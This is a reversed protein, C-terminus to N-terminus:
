LRNAVRDHKGMFIETTGHMRLIFFEQEVLPQTPGSVFREVDERQTEHAKLARLKTRIYQKTDIVTTIQKDPVGKWPKGFSEAPIVEHKLLYQAVSEPMCAYYLKPLVKNGLQSFAVQELEAYRRMPDRKGPLQPEEKLGAYKQFAYTTSLTLKSHDPHNSIGAPEFTIVVDPAFEQMPKFVAEELEGPPLESLKSDKFELYTIQSIGLIRGANELERSRIEGLQTPTADPYDGKSGVQGRTACLLAVDWGAKVYKPVTGGCTFSEDDPHAFVLLLKGMFRIIYAIVVIRVQLVM